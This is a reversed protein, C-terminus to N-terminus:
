GSSEAAPSSLRAIFDSERGLLMILSSLEDALRTVADQSLAEPSAVTNLSNTLYGILLLLSDPTAEFTLDEGNYKEIRVRILHGGYVEDRFVWRYVWGWNQPPQNWRSYALEVEPGYVGRVTRVFAIARASAHGELQAIRNDQDAAVAWAVLTAAEDGLYGVLGTRLLDFSKEDINGDLRRSLIELAQKGTQTDGLRADLKAAADELSLGFDEPAGSALLAAWNDSLNM